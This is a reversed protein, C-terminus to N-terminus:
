IDSAAQSFLQQGYSLLAYGIAFLCLFLCFQVCPKDHLM